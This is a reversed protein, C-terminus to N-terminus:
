CRKDIDKAKSIKLFLRHAEEGEWDEPLLEKPLHPDKQLVKQYRFIAQMKSPIENEKFEEIFKQYEEQIESLNWIREALSKSKIQGVKDSISFIVYPTLSYEKVLGDVDGLFNYPSIWISEQLKGFHLRKLNERLIDRNQRLREPIDFNVLYWQGDWRSSSFHKPFLEKLRTQGEKSVQLNEKIWGKERANKIARKIIDYSVEQMRRDMKYLTHGIARGFRADTMSEYGYNFFVLIVDTLSSLIGESINLIQKKLKKSRM